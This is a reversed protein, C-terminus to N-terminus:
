EEVESMKLCNIPKEFKICLRLVKIDVAGEYDTVAYCDIPEHLGSERCLAVAKKIDEYRLVQQSSYLLLSLLFFISFMLLIRELDDLSSM